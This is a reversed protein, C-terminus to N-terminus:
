YDEPLLATTVSRDAETIIWFTTGNRDQYVSLLRGGHVLADDNLGADEPHTDGWDGRAHRALAAHVDEPVLERSAQATIVVQGLPFHPFRTEYRM